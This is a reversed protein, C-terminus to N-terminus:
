LESDRESDSSLSVFRKALTTPSICQFSSSANEQSDWPTIEYLIKLVTTIIQARRNFSECRHKIVCVEATLEEESLPLPFMLSEIKNESLM